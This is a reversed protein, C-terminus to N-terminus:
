GNENMGEGPETAGAGTEKAQRAITQVRNDQDVRATAEKKELESGDHDEPRTTKTDHGAGREPASSGDALARSPPTQPVSHDPSMSVEQQTEPLLPQWRRKRM